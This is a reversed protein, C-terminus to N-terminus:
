ESKYKPHAKILEVIETHDNVRAMYIAYNNSASPDVRHDDLLLRCVEVHGNEAARKIAYNDEVSLSVEPDNILIKVVEVHNLECAYCFMATKNM